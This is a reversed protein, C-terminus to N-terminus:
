EASMKVTDWYAELYDRVQWRSAGTLEHSGPPLNGIEVITHWEGIAAMIIGSEDYFNYYFCVSRWKETTM